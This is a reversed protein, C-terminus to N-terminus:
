AGRTITITKGTFTVDCRVANGAWATVWKGSLDIVPRNSAGSVVLGGEPEITLTIADTGVHRVYATGHAWGFRDLRKGDLWIRHGKKTVGIKLNTTEHTNM